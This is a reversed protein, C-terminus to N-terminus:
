DVLTMGDTNPPPPDDDKKIQGLDSGVPSMGMGSIDLEPEDVEKIEDQMDSGLPAIGASLDSIDGANIGLPDTQPAAPADVNLGASTAVTVPAATAVKVEPEAPKTRAAENLSKIECVAGANDLAKHYKNATAQDINKKIVMRKGSFLHELKTADAKFMTGVKAKVQELDAGDKIQGSFAVEFLEDSM